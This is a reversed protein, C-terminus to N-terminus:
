WCKKFRKSSGFRDRWSKYHDSASTEYKGFSKTQCKDLSDDIVASTLSHRNGQCTDSSFSRSIHFRQKQSDELETGGVLQKTITEELTTTSVVQKSVLVSILVAFNERSWSWSRDDKSVKPELGLASIISVLVSVPM